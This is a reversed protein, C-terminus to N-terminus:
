LIIMMGYVVAVDITNPCLALRSTHASDHDEASENADSSDSESDQTLDIPKAPCSGFESLIRDFRHVCTLM